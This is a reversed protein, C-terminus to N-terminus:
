TPEGRAEYYVAEALCALARTSPPDEAAASAATAFLAGLVAAIALTPRMAFGKIQQSLM